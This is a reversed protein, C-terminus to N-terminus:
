KADRFHRECPLQDTGGADGALQVADGSITMAADTSFLKAMAADRTFPLRAACRAAAHYTLQRAATLSTRMDALLFRAGQGDGGAAGDAGVCAVAESLAATAIGLAQGSIGIRGSDLARMAVRFGRGEEHLLADAPVRVEELVLEGTPSGNLGMKDFPRGPLVGPADGPVLFASVGRAGPADNSRAFVIYLGAQGANTIFTKTGSLVWEGGVRRASTELAAADSGSGPETLAFAGLVEGSALRPLWARKQAETGFLVIPETAVSAHVDVIVATSACARALEEICTVFAVHDLGAGGYASPVLVGLLGRERAGAVAEVPFRHNRDIDAALPRVVTEALERVTARLASHDASPDPNM